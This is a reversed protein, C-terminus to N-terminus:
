PKIKVSLFLYFDTTDLIFRSRHACHYFFPFVSPFIPLLDLRWFIYSFHYFISCFTFYLPAFFSYSKTCFGRKFIDGFNWLLIHYSCVEFWVSLSDQISRYNSIKVKSIILFWNPYRQFFSWFITWIVTCQSIVSHNKMMKNKTLNISQGTSFYHNKVTWKWPGNWRNIVVKHFHAM